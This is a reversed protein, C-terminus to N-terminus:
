STGRRVTVETNSIDSYRTGVGPVSEKIINEVAATVISHNSGQRHNYSVEVVFTETHKPEARPKLFHHNCHQNVGAIYADYEHCWERRIAEDRLRRAILRAESAVDTVLARLDDYSLNIPPTWGDLTPDTSQAPMTAEQSTPPQYFPNPIPTRTLVDGVRGAVVGPCMISQGDPNNEHRWTHSFHRGRHQNWTMATDCPCILRGADRAEDWSFRGASWTFGEPPILQELHTSPAYYVM